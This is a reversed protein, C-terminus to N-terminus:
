PLPLQETERHFTTGPKAQCGSPLGGRSGPMEWTGCRLHLECRYGRPERRGVYEPSLNFQVTVNGSFNGTEPPISFFREGQGLIAGGLSTNDYIRCVVKGETVDPQLYRLNVPVTFMFDPARVGAAPSRVGPTTFPKDPLTVEAASATGFGSALLLLLLVLPKM